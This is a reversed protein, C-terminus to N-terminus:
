FNLTSRLNVFNNVKSLFGTRLMKSNKFRIIFQGQNQLLLALVLILLNAVHILWSVQM